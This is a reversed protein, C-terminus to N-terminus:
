NRIVNFEGTEELKIITSPKLVITQHLDPSVIYDVNDKIEEAIKKYVIPSPDGSINASTSVIPKGFEHILKKCFEDKVVRIAISGDESILNKAINKANPFVITLPKDYSNILDVAIMHLEDLYYQLMHIEDILIIYSKEKPRHKIKSIKDVAKSNSSDCGIGWITDTPYLITGGSKLVKLAAQIEKEM